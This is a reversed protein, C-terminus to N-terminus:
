LLDNDNKDLQIRTHPSSEQLMLGDDQQALIEHRRKRYHLDGSDRCRRCYLLCLGLTVMIAVAAFIVARAADSMNDPTYPQQGEGPSGQQDTPPSHPQGGCVAVSTGDIIAFTVSHPPLSLLEGAALIKPDMSPLEGNDGMTQLVDNITVERSEVTPSGQMVYTERRSGEPLTVDYQTQRGSNILVFILQDASRGCFAHSLLKDTNTADSSVGIPGVPQNGVIHTWLRMMYFDPYPQYIQPDLLGYNGGLMTQRCFASVPVPQAKAMSGLANAMWMTSLFTDTVGAQGSNSAMAGEGIWVRPANNASAVERSYMEPSWYLEGNLTADVLSNDSLGGRAQYKHFTIVDVYDEVYPVLEGYSSVSSAPGLLLPRTEEPDAAWIEQILDRLVSYARGVRPLNQIRDKHTIENGLEFGYITNPPAYTHTFELFARVNTPDWDQTDRTGEDCPDSRTHFNYNLTFVIQVGTQSAFQMVEYWRNGTFTWGGYCDLKTTNSVPEQLRRRLRFGPDDGTINTDTINHDNGQDIIIDDADPPPSPTTDNTQDIETSNQDDQGPPFVTTAITSINLTTTTPTTTTTSIGVMPNEVTSSTTNSDGEVPTAPTTVSPVADGDGGMNNNGGQWQSIDFDNVDYWVNNARTGGIRWIAPVLAAAAAQLKPSTLDMNLISVNDNWGEENTWWDSTFSVFHDDLPRSSAAQANDPVTLTIAITTIDEAHICALLTLFPALLVVVFSSTMM